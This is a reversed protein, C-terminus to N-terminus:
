LTGSWVLTADERLADFREGSISDLSSINRVPLYYIEREEPVYAERCFDFMDGSTRSVYSGRYSRFLAKWLSKVYCFYTVKVTRGDRQVDRTCTDVDDFGVPGDLTLAIMDRTSEGEKILTVSEEYDLSDVDVWDVTGDENTRLAAQYIETSMYDPNYPLPVCYHMSFCVLAALALGTFLAALMPKKRIAARMKKLFNIDKEEPPIEKGTEQLMQRYVRGCDACGELHEKIEANVEESSLGDIYYPLLDKVVYCKM